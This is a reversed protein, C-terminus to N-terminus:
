PTTRHPGLHGPPRAVRFSRRVILSGGHSRSLARASDPAQRCPGFRCSYRIGGGGGLSWFSPTL